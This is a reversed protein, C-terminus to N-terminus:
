RCNKSRKHKHEWTEENRNRLSKQNICVIERVAMNMKFQLWIIDKEIGKQIKNNKRPIYTIIPCIYIHTHM